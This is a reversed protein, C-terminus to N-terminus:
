RHPRVMRVRKVSALQKICIRGLTEFVSSSWCAGYFHASVNSQAGWTQNTGIISSYMGMRNPRYHGDWHLSNFMQQATDAHYEDM